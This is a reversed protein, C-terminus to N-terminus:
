QPRPARMGSKTFAALACDSTQTWSSCSAAKRLMSAIRATSPMSTNKMPGDSRECDMPKGPLGFAGGTALAM